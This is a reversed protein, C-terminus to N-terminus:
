SLAAVLTRGASTLGQMELVRSEGVISFDFLLDPKPLVDFAREPWEFFLIANEKLYERIGILELEESQAMRYLDFHYISIEGHKTEIDYEEVITFTPSKVPGQYNLARLFARVFTTKGAGLNGQLFIVLPPKAFMALKASLNETDKETALLM